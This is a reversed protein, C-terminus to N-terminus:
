LYVGLVYWGCSNYWGMARGRLQARLRPAVVRPARSWRGPWPPSNSMTLSSSWPTYITLAMPRLPTLHHKIGCKPLKEDRQDSQFVCTSSHWSFSWSNWGNLGMVLMIWGHQKPYLMVYGLKFGEWWYIGHQASFRDQLHCQQHSTDGSAGKQTGQTGQNHAARAWPTADAIAIFYMSNCQYSSHTASTPFTLRDDDLM